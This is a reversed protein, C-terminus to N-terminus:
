EGEDEKRGKGRGSARGRCEGMYFRARLWEGLERESEDVM